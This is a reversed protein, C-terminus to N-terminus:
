GKKVSDWSTYQDSDRTTEYWESAIGRL